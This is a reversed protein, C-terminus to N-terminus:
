LAIVGGACLPTIDTSLAICSSLRVEFCFTPQFVWYSHAKEPWHRNLDFKYLKSYDGVIRPIPDIDHAPLVHAFPLIPQYENPSNCTHVTFSDSQGSSPQMM